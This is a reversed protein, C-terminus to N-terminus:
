QFCLPLQEPRFCGRRWGVRWVALPYQLWHRHEADDVFSEKGGDGGPAVSRDYAAIRYRRPSAFRALATAFDELPYSATVEPWIEGRQYMALIEGMAADKEALDAAAKAALYHRLKEPGSEPEDTNMSSLMIFRRVKKRECTEILRVAGHFDVDITKEPGTKSGSGAVFICARNDGVAYGLPKELDGAVAEAGLAVIDGRQDYNRIMARATHGAEKLLPLIYRGTRGNAGVVLINM